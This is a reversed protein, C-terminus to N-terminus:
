QSNRKLIKIVNNDHRIGDQLHKIYKVSWELADKIKVMHPYQLTAANSEIVAELDKLNM